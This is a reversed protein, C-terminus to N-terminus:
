SVRGLRDMDDTLDDNFLHLYHKYMTTIDAHGMFKAVREIPLGASACPKPKVAARQEALWAEVDMTTLQSIRRNGFTPYIHLEYTAANDRRQEHKCGRPLLEYHLTRHRSESGAVVEREAVEEDLQPTLAITLCEPGERSGRLAVEVVVESGRNRYGIAVCEGVALLHGLDERRQRLLVTSVEFGEAGTELPTRVLHDVAMTGLDGARELDTAPRARDADGGIVDM